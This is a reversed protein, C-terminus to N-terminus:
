MRAKIEKIHERFWLRKAINKYKKLKFRFQCKGLRNGCGCPCLGKNASRQKKGLLELAQIVQEKNQLGFLNQYDEIIGPTGHKLESFIFGGGHKLKYSVAYLYPVLCSEAFGSLTPKKSLKQLLRLPSGMCLTGDPNVHFNGNRPIKGTEIVIPVEKPFAFPVIIKIRYTDSIIDTNISKASFSFSGTLVMEIKRSPLLSMGPYDKLFQNVGHTNGMKVKDAGHSQPIILSM